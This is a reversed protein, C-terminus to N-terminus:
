AAAERLGERGLAYTRGLGATVPAFGVEDFGLQRTLYDYTERVPAAGATLTM